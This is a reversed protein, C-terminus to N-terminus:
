NKYGAPMILLPEHKPPLGIVKSVDEDNFAGVIGAGLGLAEAQLFLNQGV